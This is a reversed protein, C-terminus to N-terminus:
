LPNEDDLNGLQMTGVGATGGQGVPIVDWGPPPAPRRRAERVQLVERQNRTMGAGTFTPPEGFRARPMVTPVATEGLTIYERTDTAPPQDMPAQETACGACGRFTKALMRPLSINHLKGCNCSVFEPQACKYCAVIKGFVGVMEGQELDKGCAGCCMNNQLANARALESPSLIAEKLLMLRTGGLVSGVGPYDMLLSAITDVLDNGHAPNNIQERIKRITEAVPVPVQDDPMLQSVLDLLERAQGPM